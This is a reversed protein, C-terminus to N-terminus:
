AGTSVGHRIGAALVAAEILQGAQGADISHNFYAFVAYGISVVVAIYTKKGNM